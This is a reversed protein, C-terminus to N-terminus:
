LVVHGFQGRGGSQRVFRGVAKSAKTIAERYSVQPRGINAGVGFERRLRDVLIELHLEGMGAILTQGTEEDTKVRFTPDEQSLKDLSIALKEEDQKSRPEIAIEIVPEPFQIRELRIPHKPDCITDGTSVRRMGVFAGIEGVQLGPREERQNAHMEVIRGVRETKGTNANLVTDGTAVKGSYVRFFTLKGVYPDTMIKFAVAAFPGKADP